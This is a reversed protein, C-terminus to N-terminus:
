HTGSTSVISPMNRKYAVLLRLLDDTLEVAAHELVGNFEERRADRVDDATLAPDDATTSSM